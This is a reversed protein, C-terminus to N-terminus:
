TAVSSTRRPPLPKTLTPIPKMAARIIVPMGNTMGGELGGARNTRRGVVSRSRDDDVTFADHVSSGPLGANEFAPGIEVGKIAPISAVAGALRGDLRNRATVHSGLGPCVGWAWVEFVGGLSEGSERAADVARCMAETAVRDDCGVASGEAAEWDVSEPEAYDVAGCDSDVGGLSVVRGLV